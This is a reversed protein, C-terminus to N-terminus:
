PAATGGNAAGPLLQALARREDAGLAWGLNSLDRRYVIQPTGTSGDVIMQMRRYGRGYRGVAAVDVCWQYSYTTLYRGAQSANAQGLITGVAALNTWPTSQQQRQTVIQTALDYTIGPVCALVTADATNVNIMGTSYNTNSITLYPTLRDLQAPTLQAKYYFDLM